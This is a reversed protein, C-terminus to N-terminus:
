MVKSKYDVVTNVHFFVFCDIWVLQLTVPFCVFLFVGICLWM